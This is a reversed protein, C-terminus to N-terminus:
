QVPGSRESLRASVQVTVWGPRARNDLHIASAALGRRALERRVQGLRELKLPWGSAGLRVEQGDGVVLTVEDGELRVESLREERSSPTSAYAGAVELARTFRAASQAPRAAYDERGIGTVLPLDLPDAAQLKKFPEGDRDLLYLEGLSVLAAPEHEVIEVSLARPWHRTLAASKVWPHAELARAAAATDISFLNQGPALAALRLLEVQPARAAGTFTIRELAFTPSSRAWGRGFYGGLAVAASFALAASFRWAAVGVQRAASRLEGSSREADTRRRNRPRFLRM